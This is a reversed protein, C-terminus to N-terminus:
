IKIVPTTIPRILDPWDTALVLEIESYHQRIHDIQLLIENLRISTKFLNTYYFCSLLDPQGAPRFGTGTRNRGIRSVKIASFQIYRTLWHVANIESM